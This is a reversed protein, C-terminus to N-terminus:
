KKSSRKGKSKKVPKIKRCFARTTTKKKGSKTKWRTNVTKTYCLYKKKGMKVEKKM